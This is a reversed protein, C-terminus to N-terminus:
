VGVLLDEHSQEGTAAAAVRTFRAGDRLAGRGFWDLGAGTGPVRGTRGLSRPGHAPDVQAGQVDRGHVSHLYAQLAGPPRTLLYRGGHQDQGAGRELEAGERRRAGGADPVLQALVDDRLQVAGPGAELDLLALM